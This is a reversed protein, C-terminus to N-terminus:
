VVSKRDSKYVAAQTILEAPYQDFAMWRLSETESSTTAQERGNLTTQIFDGNMGRINLQSSQGSDRVTTVGPLRGLSDAISADPLSSLDGADVVEVITDADRKVAVSNLISSRIGTVVVEELAADQEQAYLNVSTLSATATLAAICHSLYTKKM